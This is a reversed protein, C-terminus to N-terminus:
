NKANDATKGDDSSGKPKDVTKGDDPKNVAKGEPKADENKIFALAEDIKKNTLLALLRAAPNDPAQHPDYALPRLLRIAREANKDKVMQNVAIFRLGADQPVLEVARLLGDVAIEPPTQGQEIYSLYYLMLPEANNPNGRNAQVIPARVKSWAAADGKNRALAAMRARALYVLAQTQKPEIALARDAAAIAADVEGADLAMESLWGQVMADGAYPAAAAVAKAYLPKATETNVGARSLMRMAILAAQGETLPRLAIKPVPIDAFKVTVARLYRANLYTTLAKDLAGLDGFTQKAAAISPTGSNLLALYQHLQKIRAPDLMLYHTLLWGRGYLADRQEPTLKSRRTPDFLDEASLAVGNVLGWARYLPPAGVQFGEKTKIVTAVFEAYGETFWPPAAMSWNGLLFHHGYEHYLVQRPKLDTKYGAGSRKPTWAVSGSARGEYFGAVDSPCGRCYRVVEATNNVVYVTLPNAQSAESDSMGHFRRIVSDFQELETAMAEIDNPKGNGIVIFHASRAEMWAAQAASGGALLAALGALVTHKLNM